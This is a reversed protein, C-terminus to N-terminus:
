KSVRRNKIGTEAITGAAWMALVVVLGYVMGRLLAWEIGQLMPPFNLYDV